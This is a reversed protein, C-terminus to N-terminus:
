VVKKLFVTYDEISSQRQQQWMAAVEPYQSANYKIESHLERNAWMRKLFLKLDYTENKGSPTFASFVVSPSISTDYNLIEERVVTQYPVLVLCPFLSFFEIFANCAVEAKYLEFINYISFCPAYYKPSFRELFGKRSGNIGKSIESLANTDLLLLKYRTGNEFTYPM